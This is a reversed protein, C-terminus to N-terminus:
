DQLTRVFSKGLEGMIRHLSNTHPLVRKTYPSGDNSKQVGLLQAKVSDDVKRWGFGESWWGGRAKPDPDLAGALYDHQAVQTKFQDTMFAFFDVHQIGVAKFLTRMRERTPPNKRNTQWSRAYDDIVLIRDKPDLNSRKVIENVRKEILKKRRREQIGFYM